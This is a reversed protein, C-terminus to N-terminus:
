GPLSAGCESCAPGAPVPRHCAPCVVATSPASKGELAAKTLAAIREPSLQPELLQRAKDRSVHLKGAVEDLIENTLGKGPDFTIEHGGLRLKVTSHVVTRTEVRPNAASAGPSSGAELAHIRERERVCSSCIKSFLSLRGCKECWM